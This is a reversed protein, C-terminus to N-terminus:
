TRPDRRGRCQPRNGATSASTDDSTPSDLIDRYSRLRADDNGDLSEGAQLKDVIGLLVRQEALSLGKDAM